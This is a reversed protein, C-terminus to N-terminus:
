FRHPNYGFYSCNVNVKVFIVHGIGPVWDKDCSVTKCYEKIEKGLAQRAKRLPSDYFAGYWDDLSKFEAVRVKMFAQLQWNQIPIDNITYIFGTDLDNWFQRPARGESLDRFRYIEMQEKKRQVTFEKGHHKVLEPSFQFGKERDSSNGSEEKIREMIKAGLKLGTM